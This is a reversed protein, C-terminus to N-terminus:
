NQIDQNLLKNVEEKSIENGNEDEYKITINVDAYIYTDATNVDFKYKVPYSKGNYVVEDIKHDIYIKEIKTLELLTMPMSLENKESEFDYFVVRKCANGYINM